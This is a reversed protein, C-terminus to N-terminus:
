VPVAAALANPILKPPCPVGLIQNSVVLIFYQLWLHPSLKETMTDFGILFPLPANFHDIKQQDPM